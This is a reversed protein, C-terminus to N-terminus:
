GEDKSSLEDMQVCAACFGERYAQKCYFRLRDIEETAQKLENLLYLCLGATVVFIMFTMM